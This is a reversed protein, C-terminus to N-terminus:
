DDRSIDYEYDHSHGAIQRYKGAASSQGFYFFVCNKRQSRTVNKQQRKARAFDSGEGNNGHRSRAYILARSGSMTQVGKAFSVMQVGYDNTPYEPDTFGREVNVRIGGVEDVIEEFAAFDVRLYYHIDIGFNDKIVQATYAGGWDHRETEGYSNAHNIKSSGHGAISVWLDRPISIMAVQKTSPRISAMIITDTLYPGDHGLGGMGLLLVNIRDDSEGALGTNGHFVFQTLRKLLSDPKQPELTL